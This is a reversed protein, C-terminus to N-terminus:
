HGGTLFYSSALLLLCSFSATLTALERFRALRPVFASLLLVISTTGALGLALHIVSTKGWHAAHEWRSLGSYSDPGTAYLVIWGAGFALVAALVVLVVQGLRDEPPIRTLLGTLLLGFVAGALMLLLFLLALSEALEYGIV